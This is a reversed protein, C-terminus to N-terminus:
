SKIKIGILLVDDVQELSGKWDEFITELRLKQENMPVDKLALLKEKLQSYKFKKGKPGGFQDAYGDTFTYVIDGEQLSVSHLTFEKKEGEHLGIPQKDPKFELIEGKRLIWLPNNACAFDVTKNKFDFSCLVGDMGDKSSEDAGKPNLALIISERQANFLQDPRSLQRGFTLEHMISINLLSMFAGPVGHGTCDGTLLLFKGDLSEDAWYFDGSVIDKPKYLIFYEPLHEKLLTDSALLASQIRKAYHISSLIDKNKEEIIASQTQIEQTREMVRQELVVNQERVMRENEKASNLAQEQAIEKEKKFRNIKDGIALSFIVAEIASGLQMANHTFTNMPIIHLDSLILSLLGLMYAGFGVLYFKAPAYDQKMVVFGAALSYVCLLLGAIQINFVSIEKYPTASLILNLTILSMFPLFFRYVKPARTKMELFRNTFLLGFLGFLSPVLVPLQEYLVVFIKGFYIYYGSSYLIFTASFILYLVYFVYVRDRNTVWLFLNYIVMLLVLGIYIGNVLSSDHEEEYYASLTGVTLKVQLPSVDRMRLYFTRISDKPTNLRFLIQTTNLERESTPFIMGSSKRQVKGDPFVEYLMVSQISGLDVHLFVPEDSHNVFRFRSWIASATINFNPIDESSFYFHASQVQELKMSATSDKFLELKKGILQISKDNKCEVIPSQSYASFSFSFLLLVLLQRM